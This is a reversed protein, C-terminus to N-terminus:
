EPEAYASEIREGCHCCHLDGDEWNIDSGQAAWSDDPGAALIEHHHGRACKICLAEGDAMVLYIPYGGPWAYASFQGNDDYRFTDVQAM